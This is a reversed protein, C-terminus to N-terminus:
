EMEDFHGTEAQDCLHSLSSISKIQARNVQNFYKEIGKIMMSIRTKDNYDFTRLEERIQAISHRQRFVRASFKLACIALVQKVHDAEFIRYNNETIRGASILGVKDWYRIATAPVGTERSIDHISLNECCLNHQSENKLLLNKVIKGAIIKEGHLDAQAKNAIWLATDIEKAMVCKFIKVIEGTTFAPLMERVCAFYAMHERTYTRYGAASRPVPPVLGFEEYKRLTTTSIGLKRAIDVPRLVMSVM